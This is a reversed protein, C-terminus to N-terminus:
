TLGRLHLEEKRFITYPLANCVQLGIVKQETIRDTLIREM